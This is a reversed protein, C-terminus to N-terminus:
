SFLRVEVEEPKFARVDLQVGFKDKDDVISCGSDRLRAMVEREMEGMRAMENFFARPMMGFGFPCIEDRRELRRAPAFFPDYLSLM